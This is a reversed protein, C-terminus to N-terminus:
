LVKYKEKSKEQDTVLVPFDETSCPSLWDKGRPLCQQISSTGVLGEVFFHALLVTTMFPFEPPTM